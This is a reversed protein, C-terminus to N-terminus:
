TNIIRQIEKTDTTIDMKQKQYENLHINERGKLQNPYPKDM